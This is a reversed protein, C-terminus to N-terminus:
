GVTMSEARGIRGAGEWLDYASESGYRLDPTWGGPGTMATKHYAGDMRNDLIVVPLRVTGSM